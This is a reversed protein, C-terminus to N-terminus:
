FASNKFSCSIRAPSYWKRRKQQLLQENVPWLHHVFIRFQHSAESSLSSPSAEELIVSILTKERKSRAQPTVLVLLDIAAIVLPRRNDEHLNSKESNWKRSLSISHSSSLALWCCGWLGLIGALRRCFLLGRYVCVSSWQCLKIRFMLIQM